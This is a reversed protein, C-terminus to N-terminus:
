LEKSCISHFGICRRAAISKQLPLQRLRDRNPPRALYTPDFYEWNAITIKQFSTGTLPLELPMMSLTVFGFVVLLAYWQSSLV